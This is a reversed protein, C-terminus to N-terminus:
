RVEWVWWVREGGCQLGVALGSCALQLGVLVPGVVAGGAGRGVQSYGGQLGAQPVAGCRTSEAEHGRGWVDGVSSEVALTVQGLRPVHADTQKTDSIDLRAGGDYGGRTTVLELEQSQM